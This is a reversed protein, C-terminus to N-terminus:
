EKAIFISIIDHDTYYASEQQVFPNLKKMPQNVYIHDILSGQDFTPKKILQHFDKGALFQKMKTNKSFDWNMDGIIATPRNGDIWKDLQNILSQQDFGKSVYLFILDFALTSLAITSYKSTAATMPQSRLNLTCYTAVEKGKGAGAYYDSYGLINVTEKAKLHTEGFGSVDSSLLYNDKLVDELHCHM